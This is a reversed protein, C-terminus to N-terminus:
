KFIDSLAKALNPDCARILNKPEVHSTATAAESVTICTGALLRTAKVSKKPLSILIKPFTFEQEGSVFPVFFCSIRSSRKLINFSAKMRTEKMM